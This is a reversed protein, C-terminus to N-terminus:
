RCRTPCMTPCRQDGFKAPSDAAWCWRRGRRPLRHAKKQCVLGGLSLRRPGPAVPPLPRYLRRPHKARRAAYGNRSVSTGEWQLSSCLDSWFPGRGSLWRAGIRRRGAKQLSPGRTDALLLFLVEAQPPANHLAGPPAFYVLKLTQIPEFGWEAVKCNIVQSLSCASQSIQLLFYM